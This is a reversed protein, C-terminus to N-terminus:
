GEDIITISDCPATRSSNAIHSQGVEQLRTAGEVDEVSVANGCWFFLLLHVQLGERSVYIQCTGIGDGFITDYYIDVAIAVSHCGDGPARLLDDEDYSAILNSGGKLCGEFSGSVYCGGDIGLSKVDLGWALHVALAVVAVGGLADAAIDVEESVGAVFAAVDDDEYAFLQPISNHTM